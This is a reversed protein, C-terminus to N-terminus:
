RLGLSILLDMNEKQNEEKLSSSLTLEELAKKRAKKQFIPKFWRRIHYFLALYPHRQLTPYKIKLEKTPIFIRSLIYKIGSGKKTQQMSVLNEKKGFAGGSFIYKEMRTSLCDKQEGDFWVAVLRESAQAFKLINGSALLQEQESKDLMVNNQFIWLDLFPRIGCGGNEFHKVMHAVHYFYFAADTLLLQYKGTKLPHTYEWINSLIEKGYKDGETLDYHLEVHVGSPTFLSWENVSPKKDAVYELRDCLLRVTAELEDKKVLIDIDCGTRMWAQPYLSRLVCGKLPVFPIKATELLGCIKGFEYQQQEYRYVAIDREKLFYKKADQGDTLLGNKDLADGILHALDNRKSLKFLTPLMKPTILNKVDNCLENGNIEFRILAFFVKEVAQQM